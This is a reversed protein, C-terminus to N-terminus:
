SRRHAISDKAPKTVFHALPRGEVLRPDDAVQLDSLEAEHCSMLRLLVAVAAAAATSAAAAINEPAAAALLQCPPQRFAGPAASCGDATLRAAAAM